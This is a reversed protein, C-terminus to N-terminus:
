EGKKKKTEKKQAEPKDIVKDENVGKNEENVEGEKVEESDQADEVQNVIVEEFEYGFDNVLINKIEESEIEAVGNEFKIGWTTGNYNENKTKIIFM